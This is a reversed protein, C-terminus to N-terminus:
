IFVICELVHKSGIVSAALQPSFVRCSVPLPLNVIVYLCFLMTREIGEYM